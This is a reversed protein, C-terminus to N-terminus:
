FRSHFPFFRISPHRAVFNKIILHTDDSSCDSGIFIRLKERPYDLALLSQMKEAIVKEENYVSMLVSVLPLNADNKEFCVTNTQKGKAVWQM